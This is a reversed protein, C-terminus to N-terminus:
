AVGIGQTQRSFWCQRCLVFRVPVAAALLQNDRHAALGRGSWWRGTLLVYHLGQKLGDLRERRRRTSAEAVEVKDGVAAV